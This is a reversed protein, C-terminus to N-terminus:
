CGWIIFRITALWITVFFVSPLIGIYEIAEILQEIFDSM